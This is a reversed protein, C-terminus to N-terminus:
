EVQCMINKQLCMVPSTDCHGIFLIFLCCGLGVLWNIVVLFLTRTGGVLSFPYANTANQQYEMIILIWYARCPVLSLQIFNTLLSQLLYAINRREFLTKEFIAFM